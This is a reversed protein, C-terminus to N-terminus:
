LWVKNLAMTADLSPSQGLQRIERPDSTAVDAPDIQGDSDVEATLDGLALLGGLVLERDTYVVASSTYEQGDSGRFLENTLQWRCRIIVVAGYGRGGFGDSVGPPWYTAVQNMNRTYPATM